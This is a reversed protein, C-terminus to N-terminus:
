APPPVACGLTSGPILVPAPTVKAGPLFEPVAAGYELRNEDGSALTGAITMSAGARLLTVFLVGPGRAGMTSVTGGAPVEVGCAQVLVAGSTGRSLDGDARLSGGITATGNAYGEFQGGGAEGRLDISGLRLDRGARMSIFGARSDGRTSAILPASQIVDGGAEIDVSGGEGDPASGRMDVLADLHVDGWAFLDLSGGVGAGEEARSGSARGRIRGGIIISGVGSEISVTSGEGFGGTASVDIRARRTTRVSNEANLELGFGSDGGSLDVPADLLIPGAAADIDVTGGFGRNGGTARIGRGTLTVGGFDSSIVMDGAESDRGRGSARLEGAIEVPGGAILWLSGGLSRGSVDIRAAAVGLSELTISGATEIIVFGGKVADGPADIRAGPAMRLSRARISVEDAGAVEIRGGAEVVLARDPLDLTSGGPIVVHSGVVCDGVPECLQAAASGPLLIALLLSSCRM